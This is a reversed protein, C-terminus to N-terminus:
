YKLLDINFDALLFTKKSSEKQLKLPLPSIFDNTFYNIPLTPHKYICGVIVNTSKSCIIEIFTSEIQVPDYLRLDNRLQYSLRKSIYHLTGGASSETPTHEISYNTLQLNIPSLSDKKIKTETVALIDFVLM